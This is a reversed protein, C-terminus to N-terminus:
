PTRGRERRLKEYQWLQRRSRTAGEVHIRAHEKGVHHGKQFFWLVLHRMIIPDQLENRDFGKTAYELVDPGNLIEDQSLQPMFGTDGTLLVARKALAIRWVATDPIGSKHEPVWYEEKFGLMKLADVVGKPVNEDVVVRTLQLSM